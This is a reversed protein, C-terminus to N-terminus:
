GTWRRWLGQLQARTAEISGSNDIVEEAQARKDTLSKQAAERASFDDHDWGRQKARQERVEQAADVFIITDCLSGWGAELLVPADLVAVRYNGGQAAAAQQELIKAIRPHTLQELFALERRGAEGPAFVLQGLRRRDIRGDAGLISEGWRGRAAEEVKHHLLVSHAAQDADLRLAGLEELQKAVLSKGSAVGGVLGVVRVGTLLTRLRDTEAENM